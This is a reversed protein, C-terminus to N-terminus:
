EDDVEGMEERLTICFSAFGEIGASEHNPNFATRQGSRLGYAISWLAHQDDIGNILMPQNQIGNIFGRVYLRFCNLQDETSM